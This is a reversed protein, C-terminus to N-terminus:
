LRWKISGAQRRADWGGRGKSGAALRWALLQLQQHLPAALPEGKGDRGRGRGLVAGAADADLEGGVVLDQALHRGVRQLRDAQRALLARLQRAGHELTRAAAAM